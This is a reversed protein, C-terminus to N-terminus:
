SYHRDVRQTFLYIILFRKTRLMRGAPLSEEPLPQWTDSLDAGLVHGKQGGLVQGEGKFLEM